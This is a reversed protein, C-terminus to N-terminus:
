LCCSVSDACCRHISAASASAVRRQAFTVFVSLGHNPLPLKNYSALVRALLGTSEVCLLRSIWKVLTSAYRKRMANSGQRLSM